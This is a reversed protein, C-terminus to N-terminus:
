CESQWGSTARRTWSTMRWARRNAAPAFPPLPSRMPRSHPRPHFPPPRVCWKSLANKFAPDDISLGDATVVRAAGRQQDKNHLGLAGRVEPHAGINFCNGAYKILRIAKEGATGDMLKGNPAKPASALAAHVADHDFVIKM